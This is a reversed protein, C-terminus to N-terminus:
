CLRWPEAVVHRLRGQGVEGAAALEGGTADHLRDGADGLGEVVGVGGVVEFGVGEADHVEGGLDSEGARCAGPRGPAQRCRTRVSFLLSGTLWTGAVMVVSNSSCASPVGM